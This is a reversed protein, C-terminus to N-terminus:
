GYAADAAEKAAQHAPNETSKLDVFYNDSPITCDPFCILNLGDKDRLQWTYGFSQIVEFIQLHRQEFRVSLIPRSRQITKQAGLLAERETGRVDIKILKVPDLKLDDIALVSVARSYIRGEADEYGITRSAGIDAFPLCDEYSLAPVFYTGSSVDGAARQLPQVNQLHGLAVNGCLTNFLVSQPEFAVVYGANGVKESLRRTIDGVHANAEIVVDGKEVLSPLFLSGAPHPSTDSDLRLQPPCPTQPDDLIKV